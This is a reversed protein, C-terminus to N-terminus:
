KVDMKGFVQAKDYVNVVHDFVQANDFVQAEKGILTLSGEPRSDPNPLQWPSSPPDEYIVNESGIDYGGQAYDGTTAQITGTCRRGRHPSEEVRTIVTDITGDSWHERVLQGVVVVKIDINRTM